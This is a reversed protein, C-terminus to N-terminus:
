HLLKTQTLLQVLVQQKENLDKYLKSEKSLGKKLKDVNQIISERFRRMLLQLQEKLQQPSKKKKSIIKSDFQNCLLTVLRNDNSEEKAFFQVLTNLLKLVRVEDSDKTAKNIADLHSNIFKKIDSGTILKATDQVSSYISSKLVILSLKSQECRELSQLEYECDKAVYNCLNILLSHIFNPCKKLIFDRVELDNFLLNFFNISSLVIDIEVDKDEENEKRSEIMKVEDEEFEGKMLSFIEKLLNNEDNIESTTSNLNRKLWYFLVRIIESGISLLCKELLFTCSLYIESNFQNFLDNTLFPLNIQLCELCKIVDRKIFNIKPINDENDSDEQYNNRNKSITLGKLVSKTNEKIRQLFDINFTIIIQLLDNNINEKMLYIYESHVEFWVSKETILSMIPLNLLFCPSNFENIYEKGCFLIFARLLKGVSRQVKKRFVKKGSQHSVELGKEILTLLEIFIEKKKENIKNNDDTMIDINSYQLLKRIGKLYYLVLTRGSRNKEEFILEKIKLQFYKMVKEFLCWFTTKLDNKNLTLKPNTLTVLYSQTLIIVEINDEDNHLYNKNMLKTLIKEILEISINSMDCAQKMYEHELDHEEIQEEEELQLKHLGEEYITYSCRKNLAILSIHGILQIIESEEPQEWVGEMLFLSFCMELIMSSYLHAQYPVSSCFIRLFDIGMLITVHREKKYKLSKIFDLMEKFNENTLSHNYMQVLRYFIRIIEITIEENLNNIENEQKELLTNMLTKLTNFLQNAFESLKNHFPVNRLILSIAYLHNKLFLPNQLSEIENKLIEIFQLTYTICTNENKSLKNTIIESSFKTKLDQKYYEELEIRLESATPM